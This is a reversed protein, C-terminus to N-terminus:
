LGLSAAEVQELQDRILKLFGVAQRGDILRHDYSLALYMMPRIVVTDDVVVARKQINHMGLVGTQPPNIIPTSLMSGYVGGNSITFTGGELDALTIRNGAVKDAFERIAQEIEALSLRDADRLVPVVLGKEGGVAIGIDYFHQYVIDDGDIRANVEPFEKLATVVARVFFSMLGLKVGFRGKFDEGRQRRLDLVASMDVENFTTLMATQQRAALLHAAIKRRIPTMPVRTIREDDAKKPLDLSPGPPEPQAAPQPAAQAPAPQREAKTAPPTASTTEPAPEAKPKAPPEEAKEAPTSAKAPQSQNDTGELRAIVAGIKVTEGEQALLRITGAAEAHLELSIKDTELECLLDDKGVKSGDSVHWKAIVAEFISEGVEPVIIEM